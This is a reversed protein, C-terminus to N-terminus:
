EREDKGDDSVYRARYAAGALFVVWGALAATSVADVLPAFGLHGLVSGEPSTHHTGTLVLGAFGLLLGAGAVPLVLRRYLWEADVGAM